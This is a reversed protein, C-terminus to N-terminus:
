RSGLGAGNPHGHVEVAGRVVEHPGIVRHRRPDLDLVRDHKIVAIRFACGPRRQQVRQQTRGFGYPYLPLGDENRSQGGADQPM